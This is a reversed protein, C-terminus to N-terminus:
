PRREATAPGSVADRKTGARFDQDNRSVRATFAADREQRERVRAADQSSLIYTREGKAVGTGGEGGRGARLDGVTRELDTLRRKLEPLQRRYAELEVREADTMM